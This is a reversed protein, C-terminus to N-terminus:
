VCGDARQQTVCHACLRPVCKRVVSRFMEVAHAAAPKKNAGLLKARLSKEAGGSPRRVKLGGTSDRSDSSLNGSREDSAIHPSHPQHKRVYEVVEAPTADAFKLEICFDPPFM